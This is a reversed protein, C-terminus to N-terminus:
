ENTRHIKKDVIRLLNDRIGAKERFSFFGLSTLAHRAIIGSRSKNYVSGDGGVQGDISPFVRFSHVKVKAEKILAWYAHEIHPGLCPEEFSLREVAKDLINKYDDIRCKFFTTLVWEQFNYAIFCNESENDVIRDINRVKLRGTVKYFSEAKKLFGSQSITRRLLMAEGFSKGLKRKEYDTEPCHLFEIHKGMSEAFSILSAEDLSEDTNESFILYKFPSNSLYFHLASVYQLRRTEVCNVSSSINNYYAPNITATLILPISTTTM